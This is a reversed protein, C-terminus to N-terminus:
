LAGGSIRYAGKTHLSECKLAISNWVFIQTMELMGEEGVLENQKRKLPLSIELQILSANPRM